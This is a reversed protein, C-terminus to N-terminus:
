KPQKVNITLFHIGVAEAAIRIRFEYRGEMGDTDYIVVAARKGTIHSAFLSQQISDLSSRKDLGMEYVTDSTECDVRVFSHGDAYTYFHRTEVQGGVSECFRANLEKETPEALVAAHFLCLLLTLRM